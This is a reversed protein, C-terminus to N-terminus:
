FVVWETGDSYYINGTDMELFLTYLDVESADPKDDESTGRIEGDTKKILEDTDPDLAVYRETQEVSLVGQLVDIIDQITEGNTQLNEIANIVDQLDEEGAKYSNVAEIVDQITEGNSQLGTNINFKNTAKDFARRIAQRFNM